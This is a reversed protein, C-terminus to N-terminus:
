RVMKKYERNNMYEKNLQNERGKEWQRIRKPVRRM